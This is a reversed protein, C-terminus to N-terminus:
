ARQSKAAEIRNRIEESPEILQLAEIASASSHNNGTRVLDLLFDIAAPHQSSGMARLLVRGFEPSRTRGWGAILVEVADARRSAGLSLAAEDRIEERTSDLYKAVFTVGLNEELNILSDFVHGIVLPRRDGMQAKLRLLLATDDGGLQALARIAEARVPDETDTMAEVMYRMVEVRRLDSCQVLALACLGRLQAASDERGGWVPEMQIHRLGRVFPPSQDYDLETLAKVIATKGWCKPDSKLPNDFLADFAALLNPILGKIHLAATTRAAEAIVLNGRDQLGKRLAKVVDESPRVSRLQRLQEIRAELKRSM